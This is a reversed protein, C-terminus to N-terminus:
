PITTSYSTLAVLPATLRVSAEDQTDSRNERLRVTTYCLMISHKWRTFVGLDLYNRNEVSFGEVAKVM